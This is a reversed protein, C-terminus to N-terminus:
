SADEKQNLQSFYMEVDSIWKVVSERSHGSCTNGCKWIIMKQPTNLQNKEVLTKIRKAVTNVADQRNEFCTHGGTGMRDRIGRYGWYNFCDQGDLVPVRKGWNSEKKGISVLFAAVIHDQELIFPIMAEIPYGKVMERLRKEFVQKEQSDAILETLNAIDDDTLFQEDAITQSLTDATTSVGAV